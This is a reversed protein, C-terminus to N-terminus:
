LEEMERLDDNAFRRAFLGVNFGGTSYPNMM